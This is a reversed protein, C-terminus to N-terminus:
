RWCSVSCARPWAALITSSPLAVAAAIRESPAVQRAAPSSARWIKTACFSDAKIEVKICVTPSVAMSLIVTISLRSALPLLPAPVPPPLRATLAATTFSCSLCVMPRSRAATSRPMASRALYRAHPEGVEADREREVLRVDLGRRRVVPEAGARHAPGALLVDERELLLAPQDHRARRAPDIAQRVHPFTRRAIAAPGRQRRRRRRPPAAIRAQAFALGHEGPVRRLAPDLEVGRLAPVRARLLPPGARVERHD